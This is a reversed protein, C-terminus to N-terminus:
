DTLLSNLDRLLKEFRDLAADLEPLAVRLTATNEFLYSAPAFSDFRPAWPPMSAFHREVEAVVRPTEEGPEDALITSEKLGYAGTVLERYLRRGMLDEVQGDERDVYLAPRLIRGFQLLGREWLGELRRPHSMLGDTLVAIKQSQDAFLTAFPAISDLGGIPVISWDPDLHERGQLQLERSFWKLYLVDSPRDVLLTQPATVARKAVDYAMAARIPFLTDPDTSLFRDGVKTGLVTDGDSMDEVTRLGDLHDTDIMFPSHTTYIVQYAPLLRERIFRMMDLQARAHLGLGPEDLLIVYDHAQDRRIHSLWILFSFFWIFGASREDFSLTVNHRRNRIRTRLVYGTNFPPPDQPRAADCRFDVELSKDQSWYELVERSIRQSVSELEAVLYEFQDIEQLEEPSTNALELLALFISDVVTLQNSAKRRMLEDISVEAPLRHYEAFYLFRPLRTELVAIAQENPTGRPFRQQVHALLAAQAPTPSELGHLTRVLEAVTTVSWLSHLEAAELKANRVLNSVVRREDIDVLWRLRNDYGKSVVVKPTALVDPGLVEALADADADELRWSTTVARDPTQRRRQRYAAWRRRPYEIDSFSADTAIIPSVRYLAKLLATKGSENKGVLGTLSRISFETSDDICKFNEVRVSELIM